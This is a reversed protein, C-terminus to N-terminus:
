ARGNQSQPACRFLKSNGATAMKMGINMTKNPTMGQNSVLIAASRNPTREDPAHHISNM